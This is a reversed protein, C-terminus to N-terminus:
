ESDQESDSESDSADSAQEESSEAVEANITEANAEEAEGEVIEAEEVEDIRQLGVVNEDGATRILTVGQTNRGVQSVEAVYTRVLTGADTIMMMEDGEEVQVAGVVPGNRESVKISVVGQTARGKTPYEALETRKGYGNQTVTLIDGENSPVIL